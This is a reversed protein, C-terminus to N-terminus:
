FIASDCKLVRGPLVSSTPQQSFSACAGADRLSYRPNEPEFSAFSAAARIDASVTVNLRIADLANVSAVSGCFIM